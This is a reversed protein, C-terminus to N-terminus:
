GSDIIFLADDFDFDESVGVAAKLNYLTVSCKNYSLAIRGARDASLIMRILRRKVCGYFTAIVREEQLDPLESVFRMPMFREQSPGGQFLFSPPDNTIVVVPVNSRKTIMRPSDKAPLRCVQGDLIRLFTGDLGMEYLMGVGNVVTSDLTLDYM